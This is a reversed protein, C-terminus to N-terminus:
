PIVLPEGYLFRDLPEAMAGRAPPHFALARAATLYGVGFGDILYSTGGLLEAAHAAVREVTRQAAYRVHLARAVGAPEGIAAPASRAVAELSAMTAELAGVLEVREGPTGRRRRLVEEVLGGAVGTYSASVMLEFVHFATALAANLSQPDGFSSVHGDPVDVDTLVVEHTESGPLVGTAGLPRVELGPSSAPVVALAMETGGTDPLTLMVSATLYDMSLSLSCPRKAGNLRWGDGHREGRMTPKLVSAAPRGEGFGSALYRHESAVETLLEETVRCPPMAVVTCHHMNAALALSPSRAGLVRQVRLAEILDAGAGGYRTPVLLGPGGHERLLRLGPSEGSELVAIPVDRLRQELGPLFKEFTAREEDMFTM